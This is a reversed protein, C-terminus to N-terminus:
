RMRPKILMADGYSYFRYKKQVAEKYATLIKELSAFASVLCILTSKPLRFNTMLGDVVKFEYPPSIFIDTFGSDAVVTGRKKACGELARVVTTGIAIVPRKSAKAEQIARATEESIQYLEEDMRHEGVESSVIPRFTGPGVHLTIFRIDIRHKKIKEFLQDTFHLGATPAAVSGLDKAFTTQYRIQDEPEVKRGIYPPLPIEGNKEVFELFEAEGLDTKIEVSGDEAKKVVTAEHESSLILTDDTKIPKNSKTLALWTSSKDDSKVSRVLLVEVAGGTPRAARMRARIVKTDNAILVAGEPIESPLDDISKHSMKGSETDLVLLRGGDRRKPPYFAILEKPLDYNFLETKM